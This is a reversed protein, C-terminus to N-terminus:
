QAVSIFQLGCQEENRKRHFLIERAMSQIRGTIYSGEGSGGAGQAAIHELIETDILQNCRDVPPEKPKKRRAM